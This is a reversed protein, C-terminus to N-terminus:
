VDKGLLVARWAWGRDGTIPPLRGDPVIMFVELNIRLKTKAAERKKAGSAILWAGAELTKPVTV